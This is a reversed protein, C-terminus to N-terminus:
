REKQYEAMSIVNEMDPHNQHYNRHCAACMATGDVYQITDPPDDVHSVEGCVECRPTVPEESIGMHCCDSVWEIQMGPIEHIEAMRKKAVPRTPLGCGRCYVESM